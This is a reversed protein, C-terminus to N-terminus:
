GHRKTGRPDFHGGAGLAAMPSGDKTGPACSPNEHVHFGHWGPPRQALNPAFVLGYATETVRVKGAPTAKGAADVLNMPVTLDAATATAVCLSLAGGIAILRFM